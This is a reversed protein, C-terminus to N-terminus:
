EVVSAKLYAHLLSAVVIVRKGLVNVNVVTQRAPLAYSSGNRATIM